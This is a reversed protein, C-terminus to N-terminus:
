HIIASLGVGNWAALKVKIRDAIAKFHIVKPKGVFIPCRLYSFPISRAGFGLLNTIM